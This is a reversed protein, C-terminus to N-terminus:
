NEMNKKLIFSSPNYNLGYTKVWEFCEESYPYFVEDGQIANLVVKKCFSYRENYELLLFNLERICNSYKNKSTNDFEYLYNIVEIPIGNNLLIKDINSM